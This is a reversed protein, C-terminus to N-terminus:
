ASINITGPIHEPSNIEDPNGPYKHCVLVCHEWFVTIHSLLEGTHTESNQIQVNESTRTHVQDQAALWAELPNQDAALPARPAELPFAVQQFAGAGGTDLGPGGAESRVSALFPSILILTELYRSKNEPM